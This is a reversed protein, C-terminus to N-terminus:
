DLELADIRGTICLTGANMSRLALDAGRLCVAMRGASIHIEEGGYRLIGRHGEMWFERNGVLEMRPLGAVIDGPLDLSQAAQQRLRDWFHEM